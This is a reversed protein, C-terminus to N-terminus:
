AKRFLIQSTQRLLLVPMSLQPSRMQVVSQLSFRQPM